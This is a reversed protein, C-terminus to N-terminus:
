QAYICYMCNQTMLAFYLFGIALRHWKLAVIPPFAFLWLCTTRPPARLLCNGRCATGLVTQDSFAQPTVQPKSHAELFIDVILLLSAVGSNFPIGHTSVMKYTTYHCIVTRNIKISSNHVLHQQYKTPYQSYDNLTAFNGVPVGSPWDVLSLLFHSAVKDDYVKPKVNRRVM